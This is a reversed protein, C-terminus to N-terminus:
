VHLHEKTIKFTRQGEGAFEVGTGKIRAATALSKAVKPVTWERLLHSLGEHISMTSVLETPTGVWETEKVDWCTKVWRKILEILNYSYMQTQSTELLVKDFYSVVGMRDDTLVEQPAKWTKDIAFNFYPVEKKFSSETDNPWPRHFPKALLFMMKDATNENVEPLLGVSLPDDNLSNYLRGNWPIDLKAMFKPHYTHTPNVVWGKMAHTFSSREAENKPPAEDNIMLLGSHLLDESFTTLGKFYEVPNASKGGLLPELLQYGLLSKGANKAGCVFLTQGLLLRQHYRLAWVSRQLWALFHDLPNTEGERQVFISNLVEWIFPYQSPDGTADAPYEPFTLHATNLLRRGTLDVIGTPYNILPAAGSVRNQRQIHDLVRDVDSLTSGKPTKDSLGRARLRLSIDGRMSPVWQSDVFEWYERGSFYISEAANGLNIARQKACWEAGFIEPWRVFPVNGTFCLMGSEKVQCGTPCDAAPDWFRVGQQDLKFEGIWRDPFRAKVEAAIVDMPIEASGFLSSKKSVDIAVGILWTWPLPQPNISYWEAGNTWLEAPKLSAEDFGALLVPATLKQAIARMLAEAHAMSACLLPKEFLWICRWKGSLSVEIFTPRLEPPLQELHACVEELSSKYDYDAVFGHLAVPPNETSVRIGPALGKLASYCNWRTSIKGTWERRAPKPLARIKALAEPGPAFDWPACAAARKEVLNPTAFFLLFKPEPQDSM